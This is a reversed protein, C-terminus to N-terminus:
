LDPDLILSWPDNVLKYEEIYLPLFIEKWSLIKEWNALFTHWSLFILGEETLRNIVEVRYAWLEIMNQIVQTGEAVKVAKKLEQLKTSDETFKKADKKAENWMEIKANELEVKWQPNDLNAANEPELLSTGDDILKLKNRVASEYHYWEAKWKRNADHLYTGISRASSYAYSKLGSELCWKVRRIRKIKEVDEVKERIKVTEHVWNDAYAYELENFVRKYQKMVKYMQKREYQLLTLKSDDVEKEDEDDDEEEEGTPASDQTKEQIETEGRKPEVEEEGDQERTSISPQDGRVVKEKEDEGEKEKGQEKSSAAETPQEVEKIGSPATSTTQAAPEQQVRNDTEGKAAGDGSQSPTKEAVPKEGKSPETDNPKGAATEPPVAAPKVVTADAREKKFIEELESNTKKDGLGYFSPDESKLYFPEIVNFNSSLDLGHKLELVSFIMAMLLKAFAFAFVIFLFASVISNRILEKKRFHFPFATPQVKMHCCEPKCTGKASTAPSPEASTSPSVCTSDSAQNKAKEGCYRTAVKCCAALGNDASAKEDWAMRTVSLLKSQKCAYKLSDNVERADLISSPTKPQTCDVTNHGPDGKCCGNFIVAGLPSFKYPYPNKVMHVKSNPERCRLMVKLDYHCCAYCCVSVVDFDRGRSEGDDETETNTPRCTCCTSDRIVFDTSAMTVISINEGELCMEHLPIKVPKEDTNEDEDKKEDKKGESKGDTEAKPQQEKQQPQPAGNTAGSGSTAKDNPCGETGQGEGASGSEGKNEEKKERKKKEKKYEDDEKIMNANPLPIKCEDTCSCKLKICELLLNMDCYACLSVKCNRLIYCESIQSDQDKCQKDKEEAANCVEDPNHRYIWCLLCYELDWLKYMEENNPPIYVKINKKCSNTHELPKKGCREDCFQETCLCQPSEDDRCCLESTEVAQDKKECSVDLARDFFQTFTAITLFSGLVASICNIVLMPELPINKSLRYSHVYCTMFISIIIHVLYLAGMLTVSCWSQKCVLAIVAGLVNGVHEARDVEGIKFVSLDWNSVGVYPTFISCSFSLTMFMLWILSLSGNKFIEKLGAIPTICTPVVESLAIQVDREHLTGSLWEMMVGTKLQKFASDYDELHLDKAGAALVFMAAFNVVVRFLIYAFILYRYRGTDEKNWILHKVIELVIYTSLFSLMAGVALGRAGSTHYSAFVVANVLATGVCYAWFIIILHFSISEFWKMIFIIAALILFFANYRLCYRLSPAAPVKVFMAAVTVSWLMMQYVFIWHSEQQITEVVLLRIFNSSMFTAFGLFAMVFFNSLVYVRDKRTAAM